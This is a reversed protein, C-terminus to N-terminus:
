QIINIKVPRSRVKGTYADLGIEAGYINHYVAQITYEGPARIEFFSKLNRNRETAIEQKPELLVFYDTKPFGTDYISREPFDKGDPGTVRLFIEGEGPKAAAANVHFRKNVYVPKASKNKLTFNIQIQDNTKYEQQDFSITLELPAAAEAKNKQVIFLGAAVIFIATSIRLAKM